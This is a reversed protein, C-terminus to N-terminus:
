IDIGLHRMRAPRLRLLPHQSRAFLNGGLEEVTVSLFDGGEIGIQIPLRLPEEHLKAPSSLLCPTKEKAGRQCCTKKWPEKRGFPAPRLRRICPSNSERRARVPLRGTAPQRRSGCPPRRHRSPSSGEARRSSQM